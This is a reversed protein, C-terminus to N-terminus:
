RGVEKCLLALGYATEPGRSALICGGAHCKVRAGNEYISLSAHRDEHFPCRAERAFRNRLHGPFYLDLVDWISMAANYAAVKSAGRYPRLTQKSDRRPARVPPRWNAALQNLFVPDALPFREVSEGWDAGLPEVNAPDLLPWAEGTERHPMMPGRLQGGGYASLKQDTTPRIEIKTDAPDHGALSIAVQIAHRLVIAPLPEKSVLWLHGGRRSPEVACAIGHGLLVRAIVGIVEWGDEGDADIAAVKATDDDHLFLISITPGTGDLASVVDAPTLPRRAPYSLGDHHLYFDDSRYAFKDIWAVAQLRMTASCRM